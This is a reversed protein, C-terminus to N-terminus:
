RWDYEQVLKNIRAWVSKTNCRKAYSLLKGKVLINNNIGNTIAEGAYQADENLYFADILAKEPDAISVGHELRYGYLMNASVRKFEIRMGQANQIAKHRKSTIVKITNPIQEVLEYYSFASILSIYSPVAIRSAVEFPTASKICYLGNQIRPFLKSKSLMLYVYNPKKGTLRCVDKVTFAKLGNLRLAEELDASKLIQM